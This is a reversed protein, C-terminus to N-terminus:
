NGNVIDVIKRYIDRNSMALVNEDVFYNTYSDPKLLNGPPKNQFIIESGISAIVMADERLNVIDGAEGDVTLGYIISEGSELKELVSEIQSRLTLFGRIKESFQNDAVVDSESYSEVILSLRYTNGALAETFTDRTKSRANSVFDQPNLNKDFVSPSHSGSFGSIWIHAKQASVDYNTLIQQIEADDVVEGFGISARDTSQANTAIPIVLGILVTLFFRVRVRGYFNTYWHINKNM